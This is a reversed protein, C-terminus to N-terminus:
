SIKVRLSVVRAIAHGIPITYFALTANFIGVLPLMAIVAEQPLAFGVPPPFPLFAWNVATMIVVRSFAGVITSAIVVFASYHNAYHHRITQNYTSKKSLYQVIAIVLLFGFVCVPFLWWLTQTLAGMVGLMILMVYVVIEISYTNGAFKGGFANRVKHVIYIGLLMSLVAALNYLPGTPLEGTFIILLALTNIIAVPVGVKPGYLLFAAVIPIEWIQYILFTAYPAPIKIPSLNLVLAIAAFVIIAAIIKSDLSGKEL